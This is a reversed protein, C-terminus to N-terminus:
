TPVTTVSTVFQGSATVLFTFPRDRYTGPSGGNDSEVIYVDFFGLQRNTVHITLDDRTAGEDVALNSDRICM